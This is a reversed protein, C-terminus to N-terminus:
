FFCVFSDLHYALATKYPHPTTVFKYYNNDFTKFILDFFSFISASYNLKYGTAANNPLLLFYLYVSFFPILVYLLTSINKRLSM